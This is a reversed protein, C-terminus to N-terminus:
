RCYLNSTADMLLDHLSSKLIYRQISDPLLSFLNLEGSELIHKIYTFGTHVLMIISFVFTMLTIFAYINLFFFLFLIFSVGTSWTLLQLQRNFLGRSSSSRLIQKGEISDYSHDDPNTITSVTGTSPFKNLSIGCQDVM